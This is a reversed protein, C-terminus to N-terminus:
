GATEGTKIRKRNSDAKGSISMIANIDPNILCVPFYGFLSRYDIKLLRHRIIDLNITNLDNKMGPTVGGRLSVTGLNSVAPLVEERVAKIKSQLFVQVLTRSYKGQLHRVIIMQTPKTSNRW